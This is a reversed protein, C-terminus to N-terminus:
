KFRELYNKWIANKVKELSIEKIEAIKKYSELVNSSENNKGRNPHLYPSDTECFLNELPTIEIIKQFHENYKVSSPISLAWGNEFIRKVLLMNGSFCHMIVNKCNMKELFEVTEEEADRSHVIIPKNLEKITGVMDEKDRVNEYRLDHIETELYKLKKRLKFIQKNKEELEAQVNTYKKDSDKYLAKEDEIKREEIM